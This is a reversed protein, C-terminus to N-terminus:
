CGNLSLHFGVLCMETGQHRLLMLLLVVLYSNLSMRQLSRAMESKDSFGLVQVWHKAAGPGFQTSFGFGLSSLAGAGTSQVSEECPGHPPSCGSCFSRASRLAPDHIKMNSEWQWWCSSPSGYLRRKDQQYLVVGGSLPESGCSRTPDDDHCAHGTTPTNVASCGDTQAGVSCWGM